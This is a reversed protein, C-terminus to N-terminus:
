KPATLRPAIHSSRQDTALGSTSGLAVNVTISPDLEALMDAEGDPTPTLYVVM